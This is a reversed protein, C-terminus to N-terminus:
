FFFNMIKPVVVYIAHEYEDITIIPTHLAKDMM